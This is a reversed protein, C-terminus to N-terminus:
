RDETPTPNLKLLRRAEGMLEQRDKVPWVMSAAAFTKLLAQERDERSPSARLAAAGAKLAAETLPYGGEYKSM